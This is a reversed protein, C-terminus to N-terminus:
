RCHFDFLLATRVLTAAHLPGSIAVDVGLL